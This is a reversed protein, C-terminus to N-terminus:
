FAGQKSLLKELTDCSRGSKKALDDALTSNAFLLWKVLEVRQLTTQAAFATGAGHKEALYLIIAGSETLVMDGDQFAPLQGLPSLKLFADSKHEKAAWDIASFSFDVGLERCAWLM